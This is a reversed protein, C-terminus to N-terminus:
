EEIRLIARSAIESMPVGQSDSLRRLKKAAEPELTLTIRPKPGFKSPPRGRPKYTTDSM